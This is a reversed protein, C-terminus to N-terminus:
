GLGEATKGQGSGRWYSTLPRLSNGSCILEGDELEHRATELSSIINNAAEGAHRELASSGKTPTTLSSM